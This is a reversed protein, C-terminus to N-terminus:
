RLVAPRDCRGQGERAIECLIDFVPLATRLLPSLDGALPPEFPIVMM